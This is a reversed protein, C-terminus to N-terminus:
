DNAPERYLGLGRRNAEILKITGIVYGKTTPTRKPQCQDLVDMLLARIGEERATNSDALEIIASDLEQKTM